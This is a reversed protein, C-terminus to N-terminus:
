AIVPFTLTVSTGKRSSDRDITGGIQRALSTMLGTGSGPVADPKTGCGNDAVTLRAEGYGIGGVLTVTIRGGDEDFAYKISNTAIENLM